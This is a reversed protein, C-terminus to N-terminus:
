YKILLQDLWPLHVDVSVKMKRTMTNADKNVNGTAIRTIPLVMLSSSIEQACIKEESTQSHAM